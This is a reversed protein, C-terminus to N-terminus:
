AFVASPNIKGPKLFGDLPKEGKALYKMYAEQFHDHDYKYTNDKQIIDYAEILENEDQKIKQQFQMLAMKDSSMEIEQQPTLRGRQKTYIDAWRNQYKGLETAQRDMNTKVMMNVPNAKINQLMQDYDAQEQAVEQKRLGLVASTWKQEAEAPSEIQSPQYFSSKLAM